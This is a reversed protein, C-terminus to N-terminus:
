PLATRALNPLAATFVFLKRLRRRESLPLQRVDLTTGPDAGGQEAAYPLGFLHLPELAAGQQLSARARLVLAVRIGTLKKWHTRSNRQHRSGVDGTDAGPLGAATDLADIASANLYREALGDGDADLGYLVQMAEVGAVLPQSIWGGPGRFKCYLEPEGAAVTDVHFISWGRDEELDVAPAIARGACDNMSGDAVSGTGSGSFRLALVDSHNVAATGSRELGPATTQGQADLGGVDASLIRMAALDMPMSAEWDRYGAQQIALRLLSIAQRGNEELQAAEGYTAHFGRQAVFLGAAALVLGLSLALALM